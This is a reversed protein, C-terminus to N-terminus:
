QPDGYPISVQFKNFVKGELYTKTRGATDKLQLDWYSTRPLDATVLGPLTLTLTDLIGGNAGSASKTITFTALVLPGVQSGPWETFMRIQAYPTFNTLDALFPFSITFDDGSYVSLDLNKVTGTPTEDGYTPIPLYVRQAISGDDIEQPKYIPVLRNTRPAIRRLDSVVIKHMGIDLLNSLERYQEKREAIINMLQRYRESRPINVGDPSSIDIDFSADTALTYLALTSALLVLPYDNIPSINYLTPQVGDVTTMFKTHQEFASFLYYQIEADTFYKFCTGTIKLVDNTGLVSPTQILGTGEEVYCTSAIDTIGSTNSVTIMLSTASVPAVTLQFRSDVGNGQFTESFSRSTDGIEARLRSSLSTLTAM